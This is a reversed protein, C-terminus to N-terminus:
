LKDHVQIVVALDLVDRHPPAGVRGVRGVLEPDGLPDHGSVGGGADNTECDGRLVLVATCTFVFRKVDFRRLQRDDVVCRRALSDRSSLSIAIRLGSVMANDAATMTAPSASADSCTAACSFFAPVSIRRPSM